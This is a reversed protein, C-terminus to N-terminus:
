MSQVLTAWSIDFQQTSIAKHRSVNSQIKEDVEGLMLVAGLISAQTSINKMSYWDTNDGVITQSNPDLKISNGNCSVLLAESGRDPINVRGLFQKCKKEIQKFYVKIRSYDVLIENAGYNPPIIENPNGIRISDEDPVSQIIGDVELPQLDMIWKANPIFNKQFSRRRAEAPTSLKSRSVVYSRLNNITVMSDEDDSLRPHFKSNEIQVNGINNTIATIANLHIPNSKHITKVDAPMFIKPLIEESNMEPQQTNAQALSMTVQALGTRFLADIPPQATPVINSLKEITKSVLLGTSRTSIPIPVAVPQTIINIQKTYNDLGDFEAFLLVDLELKRNAMTKNGAHRRGAQSRKTEKSKSSADPVEENM